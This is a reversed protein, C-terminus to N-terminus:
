SQLKQRLLQRPEVPMLGWSSCLGVPSTWRRRFLQTEPRPAHRTRSVSTPVFAASRRRRSGTRSTSCIKGHHMPLPTTERRDQRIPIPGRPILACLIGWVVSQPVNSCPQLIRSTARINQVLTTITVNSITFQVTAIRARLNYRNYIAIFM